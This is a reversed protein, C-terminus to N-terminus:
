HHAFDINEAGYHETISPLVGYRKHLAETCEIVDQLARYREMIIQLAETVNRLVGM